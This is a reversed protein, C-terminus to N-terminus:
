TALFTRSTDLSSWCDASASELSCFRAPTERSLHDSIRSFIDGSSKLYLIHRRAASAGHLAPQRGSLPAAAKKHCGGIAGFYAALIELLGILEHGGSERDLVEDLMVEVFHDGSHDRNQDQGGGQEHDVLVHAADFFRRRFLEVLCKGRKIRLVVLARLLLEVRQDRLMPGAVRRAKRAKVQADGVEVRAIQGM